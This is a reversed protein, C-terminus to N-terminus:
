ERIETAQSRKKKITRRGGLNVRVSERTGKVVSKRDDAAKIVAVPCVMRHGLDIHHGQYVHHQNQQHDEDDSRRQKAVRDLDIHRLGAGLRDLLLGLDDIKRHIRLALLDSSCVDSSWDSIRM